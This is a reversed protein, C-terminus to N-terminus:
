KVRPVTWPTFITDFSVTEQNNQNIHPSTSVSHPSENRTKILDNLKQQNENYLINNSPKDSLISHKDFRRIGCIFRNGNSSSSSSSSSSSRSCSM